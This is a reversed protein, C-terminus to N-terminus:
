SLFLYYLQNSQIRTPWNCHNDIAKIKEYKTCLIALLEGHLQHGPWPRGNNSTCKLYCWFLVCTEGTSNTYSHSRGKTINNFFLWHLTSHQLYKKNTHYLKRWHLNQILDAQCKMYNLQDLTKSTKGILWDIFWDVLWDVKNILWDFTVLNLILWHYRTWGGTSVMSHGFLFIKLLPYKATVQDVHHFIDRIYIDFTRIQAREGGSKGHGVLFSFITIL